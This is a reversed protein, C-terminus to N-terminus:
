PNLLFEQQKKCTQQDPGQVDHQVGTCAHSRVPDKILRGVRQDVPGDGVTFDGGAELVAGTYYERVDQGKNEVQRRIGLM